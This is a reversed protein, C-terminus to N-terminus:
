LQHRYLLFQLVLTNVSLVETVDDVHRGIDGPHGLTRHICHELHIFLDPLELHGPSIGNRREICRLRKGILLKSHLPIALPLDREFHEAIQTRREGHHQHNDIQQDDAPELREPSREHHHHRNRQAKHPNNGPM